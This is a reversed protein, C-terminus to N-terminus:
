PTEGKAKSLADMVRDRGADVLDLAPEEDVRLQVRDGGHARTKVAALFRDLREALKLREALDLTAIVAGPVSLILAAVAVPDGRRVEEQSTPARHPTEQLGERLFAEAEAALLRANPGEIHIAIM